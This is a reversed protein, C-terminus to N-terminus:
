PVMTQITFPGIQEQGRLVHALAHYNKMTVYADAEPGNPIESKIYGADEAAVPFIIRSQVNGFIAQRMEPKLQGIHQHALTM